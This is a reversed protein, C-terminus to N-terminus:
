AQEFLLMAEQEMLSPKATKIHQSFPTGAAAQAFIREMTQHYQDPKSTKLKELISRHVGYVDKFRKEDFDTAHLEGTSWDQLASWIAACSIAVLSPTAEYNGNTNRTFMESCREAIANKGKFITSMVDSIGKHLYPKAPDPKGYVLIQSRPEIVDPKQEYAFSQSKLLPEVRAVCNNQVKYDGFMISIATTKFAGRFSSIRAHLRSRLLCKVTDLYFLAM